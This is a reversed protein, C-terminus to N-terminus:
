HNKSRRAYRSRVSLQKVYKIVTPRSIKLENAIATNSLGQLHLKILLNKDLLGLM